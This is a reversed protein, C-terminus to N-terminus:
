RRRGHKGQNPTTPKAKLAKIEAKLAAVEANDAVPAAAVPAAAVPAAAAIAVPTGTALANIANVAKDEREKREAKAARYAKVGFYGAVLAGIAIGVSAKPNDKVTQILGM